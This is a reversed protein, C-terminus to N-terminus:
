FLPNKHKKNKYDLPTMGTHKKYFLSFYNPSSFNLKSAITHIPLGQELMNSAAKIKLHIDYQKPSPGGYKQFVYKMYSKSVYNKKAIEDITLNSTINEEMFSTIKRYVKASHSPTKIIDGKSKSLRILFATIRCNAEAIDLDSADENLFVSRAKEFSYIYDEREDFNLTFVGNTLEKPLEGNLYFSMIRVTPTSKPASRICHFEMPAHIIMQNEELTYTTNEETVIVSGKEVFVIECPFHSEGKFEYKDNWNFVFFSFYKEISFCNM